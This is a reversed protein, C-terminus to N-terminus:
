QYPALFANLLGVSTDDWSDGHRKPVGPVSVLWEIASGAVIEMEFYSDGNHWTLLITGRPGAFVGDPAIPLQTRLRLLIARATAVVVTSPPAAGDGDWDDTLNSLEVLRKLSREWPINDFRVPAAPISM